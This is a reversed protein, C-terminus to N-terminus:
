FIVKEFAHGLGKERLWIELAQMDGRNARQGGREGLTDTIEVMGSFVRTVVDEERHRESVKKQYSPIDGWSDTKIFKMYQDIKASGGELCLVGPKGALVFGTLGYAPAYNVLDDRKSRTSLSPFYFWVRVLPEDGSAELTKNEIHGAKAFSAAHERIYEFAEFIDDTPMSKSLEAVEAKSLWNPQRLVYIPSPAEMVGTCRIGVSQLPVTVNMLISRAAQDDGDIVVNVAFSISAPVVDGNPQTNTSCLERLTSLCRKTAESMDLEGPSPFMGQILEVLSLQEELLEITLPTAACQSM